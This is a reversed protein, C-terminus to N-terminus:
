HHWSGIRDILVVTHISLFTESLILFLVSGFRVPKQVSGNKRFITQNLPRKKEIPISDSLAFKMM